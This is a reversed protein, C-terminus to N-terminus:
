AVYFGPLEGRERQAFYSQNVGDPRSNAPPRLKALDPLDDPFGMLRRFLASNNEAALEVIRIWTLRWQVWNTSNLTLVDILRQAEGTLGVLYGDPRVRVTEATLHHEAASLLVSGKKSNCSHCCYVLNEYDAVQSADCVQPMFHDLDFEGTYKGWRERLLCYACRFTFEDRLWPRYSEYSSYGSPGHHRHEAAAPYTFALPNSSATV